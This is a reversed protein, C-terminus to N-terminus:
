RSAYWRENPRYSEPNKRAKFVVVSSVGNDMVKPSDCLHFNLSRRCVDCVTRMGVEHDGVFARNYKEPVTEQPTEGDVGSNGGSAPTVREVVAPQVESAVATRLYGDISAGKAVAEQILAINERSIRGRANESGAPLHGNKVLWEKPRM